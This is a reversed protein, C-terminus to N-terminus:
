HSAADEISKVREARLVAAPTCILTVCEDVIAVVLLLAGVLFSSQPIWVALEIMGQTMEDSRWGDLLYSFVAWVMYTTFVMAVCVCSLLLPKRVTPPFSDVLIGVRVMDGRKFTAPLALFGAAALFWGILESAGPIYGGFKRLISEIVMTLFIGILFAGAAFLAAAYLMDLTKRM